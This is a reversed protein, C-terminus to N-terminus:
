KSLVEGVQDMAWSLDEKSAVLPPTFRITQDRTDKCLVHKAAFKECFKKAKGHEAKIDVGVMAGRGRVEEIYPSNMSNLKQVILKGLEKSLLHPKEEIMYKIVERGIACAFSNGGFTSGHTGPTFVSLVEKTGVVASLPVIGGGLSKGLLYMDPKVGEHDCAFREGTRCLGTQIEDAMFLVNNADCLARVKRLYGDPPIIIGGEGQIPELLIAVTNKTILQELKNADGFPAIIFGPAFPGFGNRYLPETSFGVVTTTRGAFNNSMCIIEAKDAPVGKVTYGWLRAAKIGTEVAEVGSNMPLVLDQGCFEALEKCFPGLQDNMFARSVMTVKSLQDIAVKEFRKNCHGFNIASYAAMMDFYSVGEVDWVWAGEGRSIVVPVPSYNKTSYKDLLERHTKSDM